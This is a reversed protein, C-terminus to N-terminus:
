YGISSSCAWVKMARESLNELRQKLLRPDYGSALVRAVSNDLELLAAAQENQKETKAFISM